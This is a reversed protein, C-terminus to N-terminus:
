GDPDQKSSAAATGSDNLYLSSVDSAADDGVKRWLHFNQLLQAATHEAPAVDVWKKNIILSTTDLKNTIGYSRTTLGDANQSEAYLQEYENAGAPNKIDFSTTYGVLAMSPDDRNPTADTERIVYNFVGGDIDYGPLRNAYYANVDQGQQGAQGAGGVVLYMHSIFGNDFRADAGETAYLEELMDDVSAHAYSGDHGVYAEQRGWTVTRAEESDDDADKSILMPPLVDIGVLSKDSTQVLKDGLTERRNHSDLRVDLHFVVDERTDYANRQDDWAKTARIIVPEVNAIRGGQEEDPKSEDFISLYAQDTTKRVIKEADRHGALTDAVVAESNDYSGFM